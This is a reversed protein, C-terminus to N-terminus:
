HERLFRRSARRVGVPAGVRLVGLWVGYVPRRARIIEEPVLRELSRLIEQSRLTTGSLAPNGSEPAHDHRPLINTSGNMQM